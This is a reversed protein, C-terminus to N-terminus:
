QPDKFSRPRVTFLIIAGTLIAAGGVMPIAFHLKQGVTDVLMIRIPSAYYALCLVGLGILVAGVISLARM